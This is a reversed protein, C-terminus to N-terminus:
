YMVKRTRVYMCVLTRANECKISCKHKHIFKNECQISCKHKHDFKNECKISCKHKHIFKNVFLYTCICLLVYPCVHEHTPCMCISLWVNMLIHACVYVHSSVCASSYPVHMHEAMRENICSCMCVCSLVRKRM